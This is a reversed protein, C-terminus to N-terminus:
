IFWRFITITHKVISCLLGCLVRNIEFTSTNGSFDFLPGNDEITHLKPIIPVNPLTFLNLQTVILYYNKTLRKAANPTSCSCRPSICFAIKNGPTFSCSSLKSITCQQVPSANNFCRNSNGSSLWHAVQLFLNNCLLKVTIFYGFTM